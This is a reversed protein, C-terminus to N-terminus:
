DCVVKLLLKEQEENLESIKLMKIETKLQM